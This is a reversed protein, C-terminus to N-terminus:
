RPPITFRRPPSVTRGVRNVASVRLYYTGPALRANPPVDLNQAIEDNGPDIWPQLTRTATRHGLRATKGYEVYFRTTYGGPRLGLTVNACGCDPFAPARVVRAEPKTGPKTTFMRDATQYTATYPPFAPTMAIARYHYTTGPSLRQLAEDMTVNEASFGFQIEQGYATTPGYELRWQGNETTTLTVKIAANNQEIQTAPGVAISTAAGPAASSKGTAAAVLVVALCGLITVTRVDLPPM